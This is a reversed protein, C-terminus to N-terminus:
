SSVVAASIVGFNAIAARLRSPLRDQVFVPRQMVNHCQCGRCAAVPPRAAFKRPIVPM